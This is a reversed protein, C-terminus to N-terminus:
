ARTGYYYYTLDGLPDIIIAFLIINTQAIYVGDSIVYENTGVTSLLIM